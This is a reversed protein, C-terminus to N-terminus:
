PVEEGCLPCAKTVVTNTYTGPRVTTDGECETIGDCNLTCSGGLEWWDNCVRFGRSDPPGCSVIHQYYDTRTSEVPGCM